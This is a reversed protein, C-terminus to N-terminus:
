ARNRWERDGGQAASDEIIEAGPFAALTAAVLPDTLLAARADDREAEAADRLTPAAEDSESRQLQWHEGTARLLADRLKAGPDSPYGPAVAYQRRGSEIATGPLPPLPGTPVSLSNRV